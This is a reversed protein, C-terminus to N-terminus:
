KENPTPNSGTNEYTYAKVKIQFKTVPEDGNIEVTEVDLVRGNTEVLELFNKFQEMSGTVTTSLTIAHLARGPQYPNALLAKDAASIAKSSDSSSITALTMGSSRVLSELLVYAKSVRGSLPLAEDVKAVEESSSRLDGILRKLDQQDQQTQALQAEAAKLNSRVETSHSLKPKLIFWSFLVFIVALLVIQIISSNSARAASSTNNQVSPPKMDM